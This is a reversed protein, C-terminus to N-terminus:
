IGEGDGGSRELDSGSVRNWELFMKLATATRRLTRGNVVLM